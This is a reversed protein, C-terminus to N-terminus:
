YVKKQQTGMNLVLVQQHVDQIFLKFGSIAEFSFNTSNYSYEQNYAPNDSSNYYPLILSVRFSSWLEIM